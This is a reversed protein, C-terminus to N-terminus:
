PCPAVSETPSPHTNDTKEQSQQGDIDAPVETALNHAISVKSLSSLITQDESLHQPSSVFPQQENAQASNIAAVDDCGEVAEISDHCSKQNLQDLLAYSRTNSHRTRRPMSVFSAADYGTTIEFQKLDDYVDM